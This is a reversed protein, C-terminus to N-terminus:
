FNGTRVCRFYTDTKESYQVAGSGFQVAWLGIGGPSIITSSQYGTCDGELAIDWFCGDRGPGEIDSCGGECVSENCTYGNDYCGEAIGCEGGTMTKECGRILSRLEAISPFRWDDHGDLTMNDCHAVADDWYLAETQTPPNEWCLGSTEDYWGWPPGCVANEFDGTGTSITDGDSDVLTDTVTDTQYDSSQQDPDNDTTVATEKWCGGLLCLL